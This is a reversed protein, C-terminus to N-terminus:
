LLDILLNLALIFSMYSWLIVLWLLLLGLFNYELVLSMPLLILSFISLFITSYFFLKAATKVEQINKEFNFFELNARKLAEDELYTNALGKIDKIIKKTTYGYVESSEVEWQYDEKEDSKNIVFNGKRYYNILHKRMSESVLEIDKKLMQIRYITIMGLLTALAVFSQVITSYTWFLVKASIYNQFSTFDTIFINIYDAFIIEAVLPLVSIILILFFLWPSFKRELLTEKLKERTEDKM